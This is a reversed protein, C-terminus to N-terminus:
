SRESLIWSLIVRHAVARTFSCYLSSSKFWFIVDSWEAKSSQSTRGSTPFLHLYLTLGKSGKSLERHLMEKCYEKRQQLAMITAKSHLISAPVKIMALDAFCDFRWNVTVSPELKLFYYYYFSGNSLSAKVRKGNVKEGKLNGAGWEIVTLSLTHWYSNLVAMWLEQETYAFGMAIRIFGKLTDLDKELSESMVAFLAKSATM